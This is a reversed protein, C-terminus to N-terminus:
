RGLWLSALPEDLLLVRPKNVLARAIAVRQKQGGSIQDPKKWAQDEMQILTLMKEVEVKIEKKPRKAVKLGFAINRGVSWHPLLAPQSFVMAVDRQEPPLAHVPRNGVVIEGGSLPDLGAILRLLLSPGDGHPAALVAFERDRVELSFNEILGAPICINKLSVQAM